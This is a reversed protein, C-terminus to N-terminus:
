HDYEKNCTKCYYERLETNALRSLGLKTNGRLLVLQRGLDM